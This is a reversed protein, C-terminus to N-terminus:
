AVAVDIKGGPEQAPAPASASRVAPAATVRSDFEKLDQPSVYSAIREVREAGVLGGARGYVPIGGLLAPVFLAAAVAALALKGINKM